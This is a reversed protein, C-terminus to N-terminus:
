KLLEFKQRKFKRQADFHKASKFQVKRKESKLRTTNLKEFM